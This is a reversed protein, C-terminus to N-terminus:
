SARPRSPLSRPPPRFDDVDNVTLGMLSSVGCVPMGVYPLLTARHHASLGALDTDKILEDGRAIRQLPLGTAEHLRQDM